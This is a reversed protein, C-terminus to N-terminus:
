KLLKIKIFIILTGALIGLIIATLIIKSFIKIKSNNDSNNDINAGNFSDLLNATNKQFLSQNNEEKNIKPFINKSGPTLISTFEWTNDAKRAYSYNEKSSKPYNLKQILNNQSDLLEILGGNNLLAIKTTPRSFILFSKAFIKTNQPIKFTKSSSKIQWNSLDVEIQNNNYIEIWEYDEDKGEPNTLIENIFVNKNLILNNIIQQSLDKDDTKNKNIPSNEELEFNEGYNNQSQNIQSQSSSPNQFENSITDTNQKEENNQTQINETNQNNNQNNQGTDISQQNEINQNQTQNNSQTSNPQETNQQYVSNQTKPTGLIPNNDADKGNIKISNNSKWNNPDSGDSLPNIREMSIYDPNAAGAPWGSSFYVKDTIEGYANVLELDEGKNSLSGYKGFSGVYDGAIDSITSDATREILYFGNPPISGTLYITPAGDKARLVWNELNITSDSNNYLEIWEDTASAKTGAWSIENIVVSLYNIENAKTTLSFFYFFIPMLFGLSILIKIWKQLFNYLYTLSHIRRKNQKSLDRNTLIAFSKAPLFRGLKMKLSLKM